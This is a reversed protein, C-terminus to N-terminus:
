NLVGEWRFTWSVQNLMRRSVLCPINDQIRHCVPFDGLPLFWGKSISWISWKSNGRLRRPSGVKGAALLMWWSGLGSLVHSTDCPVRWVLLHGWRPAQLDSVWRREGLQTLIEPHCARWTIGLGTQAYVTSNVSHPLLILPSPEHGSGTTWNVGSVPSRPRTSKQFSFHACTPHLAEGHAGGRGGLTRRYSSLLLLIYLLRRGPEGRRQRDAWRGLSAGAQPARQVPVAPAPPPPCRVRFSPVVQPKHESWCGRTLKNWFPVGSWYEQRSVGMSPPPQHAVTWPTALLRVRSLSKVKVKWKWANSVSIAVWELTRAQLIGPVPSGPPSYDIPDCLTPCSQLSKAAAAAASFM